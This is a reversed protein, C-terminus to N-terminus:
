CSRTSSRRPQGEPREPERRHDDEGSIVEVDRPGPRCQLATRINAVVEDQSVGSDAKVDIADVQGAGALVRTATAPAFAVITAGLLSNTSGFKVIGTLTYDDRGAKTICRARHRRGQLRRRRRQRKDIVIEDPATRRRARRRRPDHEPRPRPHLSARAHARGPRQQGLADGKKDVIVALGQVTGDAAAVGDRAASRRCCTPASADRPGRASARGSFEEKARVVADTHEYIDSFLGDFTNSITATLVFTGSMFAVGLIVAVGTLLFRVKKRGSGRSRSRGCPSSM